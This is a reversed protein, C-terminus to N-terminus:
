QIVIIETENDFHLIYSGAEEYKMNLEHGSGKKLLVGQMNYVEWASENTLYFLGTVSPNPYVISNSIVKNTLGTVCDNPVVNTNGGACRGCVDMNATGDLDGNCDVRPSEEDIVTYGANSTITNVKYTVIFDGANTASQM